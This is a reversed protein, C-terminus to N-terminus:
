IRWEERNKSLMVIPLLAKKSGGDNENRNLFHIKKLEEIKQDLHKMYSDKSDERKAKSRRLPKPDDIKNIM